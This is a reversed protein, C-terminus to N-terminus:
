LRKTRFFFTFSEGGGCKTVGPVKPIICGNYCEGEYHQLSVYDYFLDLTTFDDPNDIGHPNCINTNWDIWDDRDPRTQEHGFCLTHGLEHSMVAASICGGGFKAFQPGGIRCVHALGCTTDDREIEVFDEDEPQRPVFRVCTKSQYNEIARAVQVRQNDDFSPDLTYPVRASPWTRHRYANKPTIDQLPHFSLFSKVFHFYHLSASRVPRDQRYQPPTFGTGNVAASPILRAKAFDEETLYNPREAETHRLYIVFILSVCFAKACSM